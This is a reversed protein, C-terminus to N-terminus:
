GNLWAGRWGGSSPAEILRDKLRTLELKKTDHNEIVIEITVNADAMTKGTVMARVDGKMGSVSGKKTARLQGKEVMRSTKKLTDCIGLKLKKGTRRQFEAGMEM